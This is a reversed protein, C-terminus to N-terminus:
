LKEVHDGDSDNDASELIGMGPPTADRIIAQRSHKFSPVPCDSLKENDEDVYDDDDDVYDDDVYDDDDEDDDEEDSEFKRMMPPTADMIISQCLLSDTLGYIVENELYYLTSVDILQHTEQMFFHFGPSDAALERVMAKTAHLIDIGLLCSDRSSLPDCGLSVTLCRHALNASVKPSFDKGKFMVPWHKFVKCLVEIAKLIEYRAAPITRLDAHSLLDKIREAFEEAHVRAQRSFTFSCCCILSSESCLFLGLLTHQADSRITVLFRIQRLSRM